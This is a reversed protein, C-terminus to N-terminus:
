KHGKAPKGLWSKPIFSPIEKPQLHFIYRVAKGIDGTLEKEMERKAKVGEMQDLVQRWAIREGKKKSWGALIRLLDQMFV